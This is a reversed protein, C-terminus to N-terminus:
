LNWAAPNLLFSIITTNITTLVGVETRLFPNELIILSHLFQHNKNHSAHSDIVQTCSHSIPSLFVLSVSSAHCNLPTSILNAKLLGRENKLSCECENNAVLKHQTEFCPAEQINNSGEGVSNLLSCHLALISYIASSFACLSTGISHDERLQNLNSANCWMKDCVHFGHKPSLFIHLDHFISIHLLRLSLNVFQLSPM